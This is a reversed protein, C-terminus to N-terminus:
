SVHSAQHVVAYILHFSIAAVQGKKTPLTLPVGLEELLTHNEALDYKSLLEVFM